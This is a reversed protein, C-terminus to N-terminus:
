QLRSVYNSVKKHGSIEGADGFLVTLLSELNFMLNCLNQMESIPNLLFNLKTERQLIFLFFNDTANRDVIGVFDISQETAFIM